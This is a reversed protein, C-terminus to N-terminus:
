RFLRLVRLADDHTPASFSAVCRQGLLDRRGCSSELWYHGHAEWIEWRASVLVEVV